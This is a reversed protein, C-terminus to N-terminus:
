APGTDRSFRARFRALESATPAEGTFTRVYYPVRALRTEPSEEIGAAIYGIQVLYVTHARVDAEEPAFGHREFLGRIAALRASDAAVVRARVADSQVAWGRIALDFRPEFRTEEVFMHVLALLAEALTESYAACASRIAETNTEDWLDLLARLLEDRDRFFWYFSTRSLKLRAALPQIRVAGEGSEVLADRAAALWVERSGRWGATKQEGNKM